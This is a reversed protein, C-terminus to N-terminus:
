RSISVQAVEMDQHNYIVSCNDYPLKHEKSNSNKTEKSMNWSTPNNSFAAGNKVKQPIKMSSELHSLWDENGGVTCLPDERGM